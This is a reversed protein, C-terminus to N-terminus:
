NGGALWGGKQRKNLKKLEMAAREHSIREATLDKYIQHATKRRRVADGADLFAELVTAVSGLIGKKGTTKLGSRVNELTRTLNSAILELGAQYRESQAIPARRTTDVAARVQDECLVNYDQFAVLEEFGKDFVDAEKHHLLKRCAAHCTEWAQWTYVYDLGPGKINQLGMIRNLLGPPTHVAIDHIIRNGTAHVDDIVIIKAMFWDTALQKFETNLTERRTTFRNQIKETFTDVANLEDLWRHHHTAIERIFDITEPPNQQQLERLLAEPQKLCPALGAQPVQCGSNQLMLQLRSHLLDLSDCIKLRGTMATFVQLAYAGSDDEGGYLNIKSLHREWATRIMGSLGTLNSGILFHYDVSLDEAIISAFMRSRSVRDARNNVLSSIMVEPQEHPDHGAFGMRRWNELAAFRENASMGNVFELKRRKISAAPFVKLAGIDPVVRDAMEKLVFDADLGLFESLKVVLAINNPHEEYPFRALVDPTLLGAELWGTYDIRTRKRRADDALIHKMEEESTILHGNAPIFQTMVQPINYGAPGQIDEHDPYTNTITSYDDRTWHKQLISVLSPNLAMCEWLFINSQLRATMCILDHHEWITAKDYPRFLFMERTKGFPRTHLFMAECGTTKNVFGHGLAEFVSSKLREVGSKGRTGWGGIVLRIKRRASQVRYSLYLRRGVFILLVATAFLGLEYISNEYVAFFYHQFAPWLDPHLFPLGFGFFRSVAPDEDRGQSLGDFGNWRIDFGLRRLAAIYAGPAVQSQEGRNRLRAYAAFRLTLEFYARWRNWIYRPPRIETIGEATFIRIPSRRWWRRSCSLMEDVLPLYPRWGDETDFFLPEGPVKTQTMESGIASPARLDGQYKRGTMHSFGQRKDPSPSFLEYWFRWLRFSFREGRILCAGTWGRKLSLGFNERSLVSLVRGIRMDDMYRLWAAAVRKRKGPRTRNVLPELRKKLIGSKTDLAVFIRERTLATWRRVRLDEAQQHLTELLFAWQNILTVARGHADQAQLRDIIDGCTKLATRLVFADKERSLVGSLCAALDNDVMGCSTDSRDFGATLSLVGAARVQPSADQWLMKQTCSLLTERLIKCSPANFLTMLVSPLAQRVFPSPDDTVSKLQRLLIDSAYSAHDALLLVAKKRVFFSDGPQPSGLRRDLAKFFTDPHVRSLLMLSETQIWIPQRLDISARYIFAVTDESLHVARLEAQM